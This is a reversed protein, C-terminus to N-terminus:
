DMNVVTEARSKSLWGRNGRATRARSPWAILEIARMTAEFSVATGFRGGIAIRPLSFRSPLHSGLNDKLASVASDFGLERILRQDRPGFSTTTGYPYAFHRVPREILDELFKRNEVIERLAGADDLTALAPHSTTHGGVSALPHRSLAKLERESLFYADNLATLSIGAKDLEPLLATVRRYDQHIWRAIDTLAELKGHYDGCSFWRDMCDISFSDKTRLLERVGLWWSPLTRTLAGTPVNTMFPANFEELIPLATSVLDRYGDDFTLIVYRRTESEASLKRVCEDLTIVEWGERRLWELSFRLLAVSTGTRLEAQHDMQVEHLMIIVARASLLNRLMPLMGVYRLGHFLGNRIVQNMIMKLTARLAGIL